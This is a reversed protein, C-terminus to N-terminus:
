PRARDLGAAAHRGLAAQSLSRGCAFHRAQRLTGAGAPAGAELPLGRFEAQLLVNDMATRFELLLHDQFVIGIDTLPSTLAAGNVLLEGQSLPILGAAMLMFTSKGCGSPGILNVFEGSRINLTVVSPTLQRLDKVIRGRRLRRCAHRHDDRHGFQSRGPGSHREAGDPM